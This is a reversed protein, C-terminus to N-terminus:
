IRHLTYYLSFHGGLPNTHFSHFIHRRLDLPVIGLEVNKLMSAIPEILILRQDKWKIQSKRM